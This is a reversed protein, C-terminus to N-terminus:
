RRIGRPREGLDVNGIYELYRRMWRRIRENHVKRMAVPFAVVTAILAVFAAPALKALGLVLEDM